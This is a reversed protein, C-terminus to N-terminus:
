MLVSMRKEMLVFYQRKGTYTDLLTFLYFLSFNYQLTLHAHCHRLLQKTRKTYDTIRFKCQADDVTFLLFPPELIRFYLVSKSAINEGSKPQKSMSLSV